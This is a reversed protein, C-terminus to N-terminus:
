DVTGPHIQPAQSVLASVILPASAGINVALIPNLEVDSSHQYAFALLGGIGIMVVTVMWYPWKKAYQPLNNHLQERIRFWKLAEVAIGGGIGCLITTQLEM